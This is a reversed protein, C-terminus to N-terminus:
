SSEDRVPKGDIYLTDYSFWAKKKAKKAASLKPLLKRRKEVVEKPFQEHFYFDTDDLAKWQKRVMERDKFLTFKAVINRPKKDDRQGMRHVREFSLKDVVDQAINMKNKLFGRLGEECDENAGPPAEPINGFILNNRMSQSQLYVVEDRLSNKEKELHVVKDNVFGLSFDIAEIKDETRGVRTNVEKINDQVYNWMKSMEKEFSVVKKELVEIKQVKIKVESITENMKKLYNMIDANSPSQGQSTSDTSSAPDMTARHTPTTPLSESETPNKSKSDRENVSQEIMGLNPENLESGDAIISTTESMLRSVSTEQSQPSATFKGAKSVNEESEFSERKKRKERRKKASGGM